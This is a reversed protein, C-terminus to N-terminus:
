RAWTLVSLIACLWVIVIIVFLPKLLKLFYYLRM